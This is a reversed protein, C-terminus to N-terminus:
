VRFRRARWVQVEMSPPETTKPLTVLVRFLPVIAIVLSIARSIAARSGGLM